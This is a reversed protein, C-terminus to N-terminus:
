EHPRERKAVIVAELRADLREVRQVPEQPVIRLVRARVRLEPADRRGTIRADHLERDLILELGATSRDCERLHSREVRTPAIENWKDTRVRRRRTPALRSVSETRDWEVRRHSHRDKDTRVRKARRHSRQNTGTRVKKARRHSRRDTDTRTERTDTRVRKAQRHSGALAQQHSRQNTDTRPRDKDTCIRKRKDTGDM